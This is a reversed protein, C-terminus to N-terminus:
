KKNESNVTNIGDIQKQIEIQKDRFDAALEYNKNKIANAKKAEIETLKENLQAITKTM